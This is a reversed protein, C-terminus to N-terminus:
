PHTDCTGRALKARAKWFEEIAYMPVRASYWCGNAKAHASPVMEKLDATNSLTDDNSALYHCSECVSRGTLTSLFDLSVAGLNRAALNPSVIHRMFYLLEHVIVLGCLTPVIQDVPVVLFVRVAMCVARHLDVPDDLGTLISTTWAERGLEFGEVHLIPRRCGDRRSKTLKATLVDGLRQHIAECSSSAPKLAAM